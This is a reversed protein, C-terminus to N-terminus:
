LLFALSKKLDSNEYLVRGQFTFEYEGIQFVFSHHKKLFFQFKRFLLDRFGTLSPNEPPYIRFAKTTKVFINMLDRAELVVEETEEGDFSPIEKNEDLDRQAELPEEAM